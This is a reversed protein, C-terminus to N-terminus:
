PHTTAQEEHSLASAPIEEPPSNPRQWLVRFGDEGQGHEDAAEIRHLGKALTLSATAPRVANGALGCVNGFLAPTTAVLKGDIALTGADNAFLTFVYGGDEPIELLGSFSVKYGTAAKLRDVAPNLNQTIGSTSAIQSGSLFRQWTLGPSTRTTLTIAPQLTEGVVVPAYAWSNRGNADSVHLLVRFRGSGDLLTGEADSFRHKVVRGHAATGDGFTWEYKLDAGKAAELRVKQSPRILGSLVTIQAVPGTQAFTPEDAGELVAVPVDSDKAAIKGALSVNEFSV